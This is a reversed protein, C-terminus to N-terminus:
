PSPTVRAPAGAPRTALIIDKIGAEQAVLGLRLIVDHAVALDAQVVLTIEGRARTTADQLRIKLHDLQIVQSQFYLLGGRDVAVVITPKGTAPLRGAEPLNIRVGSTFVFSSMLVLFILLLFFVGAFPAADLPGHFMRTNRPFKM